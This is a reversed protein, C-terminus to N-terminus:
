SIIKKRILWVLLVMGVIFLVGGVTISLMYDLKFTDFLLYPVYTPGAFILLAAVITLTIKNFKTMESVQINEDQQTM